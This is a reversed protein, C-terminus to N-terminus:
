HKRENLRSYIKSHKDSQRNAHERFAELSCFSRGHFVINIPNNNDQYRM